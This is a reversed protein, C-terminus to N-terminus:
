RMPLLRGTFGEESDKICFRGPSGCPAGSGSKGRRANRARIGHNPVDAQGARGARQSGALIHRIRKLVREGAADAEEPTARPLYRKLIEDIDMDNPKM